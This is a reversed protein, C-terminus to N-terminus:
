NVQIFDKTEKLEKKMKNLLERQKSKEVSANELSVSLGQLREDLVSVQLLLSISLKLLSDCFQCYVPM